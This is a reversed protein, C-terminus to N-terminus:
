QTNVSFDYRKISTIRTECQPCAYTDDEMCNQKICSYCFLHNCNSIYPILIPDRFCIRCSTKSKEPNKPKQFSRALFNKVKQVNILPLIFMMFETFGHWVLQRNMYEFNMSRQADITRYMLRMGLIRGLVSIYKGHLLFDLFNIISFVKYITEIYNIVNRHDSIGQTGRTWVWKGGITLLGYAIKKWYLLPSADANTFQLNQSKNGYTSDVVYISFRFFLFDLFATIEPKFREVFDGPFFTFIKMFQSSFIETIETDLRLADLQNVRLVYIDKKPIDELSKSLKEIQPQSRTWLEKSAALHDPFTSNFGGETKSSLQPASTSLNKESKSM